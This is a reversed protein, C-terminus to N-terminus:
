WYGYVMASQGAGFDKEVKLASVVGDGLYSALEGDIERAAKGELIAAEDHRNQEERLIAMVMLKLAALNGIVLPDNDVVVPVHQLKVLATIQKNVTCDETEANECAPMDALGPIFSRRYIPVQESPEYQSLLKTIAPVNSAEYMLVPYKTVEKVVHYLGGTSVNSSTFVANAPFAAAPSVLTLREGEQVVPVVSPPVTQPSYKKQGNDDIYRLTVAKGVDAINTAILCIKRPAATTAIVDDFACSPDRDILMKGPMNEESQIGIGNPWGIFEFFNSRIVGPTSCIAFAEITRIFRPWSLCGSLGCCFRYRVLSGVPYDPRNLLRSSAENVYDAVRSSSECVGIVRAIQPRCLALTLSTM